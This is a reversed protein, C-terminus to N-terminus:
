LEERHAGSAADKLTKLRRRNRATITRLTAEKEAPTMDQWNTIRSTSGDKNIVLPGLAFSLDGSGTSLDVKHTEESAPPLQRRPEAHDHDLPPKPSQAAVHFLLIATVLFAVRMM